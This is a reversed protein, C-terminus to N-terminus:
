REDDAKPARRRLVPEIAQWARPQFQSSLGLSVAWRVEYGGEPFDEPEPLYLLIGNAYSVLAPQRYGMARLRIKLRIATETFVEAPQTVLMLDGIRLMMLEAPIHGSDDVVPRETILPPAPRDPFEDPAAAANVTVQESWITPLANRTTIRSAIYSVEEAFAAGLEAVEDFTGGGRDGIGWRNPDDPSGYYTSVEGIAWITQGGRLRKRVGSVLPNINGAGGQTFLCTAAPFQEELRRMADGPWDGSIQYNDYGLVVSHCAFNTFLGLVNGQEDDVRLVVVGPDIPRDLWRRNISYGYLFGSGSGLRAPQRAQWAMEVADAMLEALPREWSHADRDHPGAHTHTCAILVHDGPVGTRQAVANRVAGVTESGVYCLDNAVIAWASGDAEVVLARALLPDHVATAGGPRNGYGVLKCGLKPTIDARGFGAKLPTM